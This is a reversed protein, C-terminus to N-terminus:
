WKTQWHVEGELEPGALSGDQGLIEVNATAESATPNWSFQSRQHLSLRNWVPCTTFKTPSKQAVTQRDATRLENVLEM